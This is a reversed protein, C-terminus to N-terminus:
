WRRPAAPINMMHPPRAFLMQAEPSLLAWLGYVGLATGFPVSFLHLVSLVIALIRAWPKFQLLGIGCILSPLSLIAIIVFIIGGIGGLIPAALADDGHQTLSSGLVGALGGFFVLVLLAALMGLGGYIIQLIGLVKIHSAM